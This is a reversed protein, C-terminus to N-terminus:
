SMGFISSHCLMKLKSSINKLTINIKDFRRM